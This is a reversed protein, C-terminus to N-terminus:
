FPVVLPLFSHLFPLCSPRAMARVNDRKGRRPPAIKGDDNHVLVIHPLELSLVYHSFSITLSSLFLISSYNEDVLDFGWMGGLVQQAILLITFFNVLLYYSSNQQTAGKEPLIFASFSHSNPPFRDFDPSFQCHMGSCTYTTSTIATTTTTTIIREVIM